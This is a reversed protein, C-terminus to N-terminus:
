GNIVAVLEYKGIDVGICCWDALAVDQMRLRFAEKWNGGYKGPQYPEKKKHYV